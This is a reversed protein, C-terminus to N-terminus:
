NNRFLDVTGVLKVVTTNEDILPTTLGEFRIYDRPEWDLNKPGNVIPVCDVVAKALIARSHRLIDQSKTDNELWTELDSWLFSAPEIEFLSSFNTGLFESRFDRGEEIVDLMCLSPVIEPYELLDFDSALPAPRSGRLSEWVTYLQKTKKGSFDAVSRAPRFEETRSM